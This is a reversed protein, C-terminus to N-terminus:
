LKKKNNNKTKQKKNKKPNQKTKNQKKNTQKNTKKCKPCLLFNYSMLWLSLIWEQPPLATPTRPDDLLSGQVSRHLPCFLQLRPV